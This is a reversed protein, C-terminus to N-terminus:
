QVLVTGSAKATGSMVQAGATGSLTVVQTSGGVGHNDDTFTLTGTIPATVSAKMTPTFGVTVACNAQGALTSGCTNVTISYGAGAVAVSAINLTTTSVNSLTVTQTISAVGVSQDLFTMSSTDLSALAPTPPTAQGIQDLIWLNETRASDVFDGYNAHECPTAAGVMAQPLCGTPYGWADYGQTTTSSVGDYPDDRPTVWGFNSLSSDYYASWWGYGVMPYTGALAGSLVQTNFLATMWTGFGAGRLAQTSYIYNDTPTYPSMYSDPEAYFGEWNFAPIDGLNNFFFDVRAQNDTIVSLPDISPLTPSYALDVYAGFGRLVPARTPSSWSGLQTGMYLVGPAATALADHEIKAYNKAMHYLFNDMDVIFAATTGAPPSAHTAPTLNYDAPIWCTTGGNAKAPCKGDEDLLGWGTGWGNTQYTVTMATGVPVTTAFTLSVAGTTYNITGLNRPKTGTYANSTTGRFYGTVTPSAARPGSGDDGATLTGGVLVQVTLPTLPHVSLTCTYPGTTGDGTACAEGTHTVADSGLSDYHSGWANNLAGFNAYNPGSDLAQQVWTGLEVKTYFATHTFLFDHGPTSCAYNKPATTCAATTLVPSTILSIVGWHADPPKYLYNAQAITPFDTGDRFGGTNDGEDMIMGLLYSTNPGILWTKYSNGNPAALDGALWAAFAPDFFDAAIMMYIGPVSSVKFAGAYGKMPGYGAAAEWGNLDISAYLSSSVAGVYPIHVPNTRDSTGWSSHTQNPLIWNTLADINTNIGWSQERRTVSLGWNLTGNTTFGTAYKNNTLTTNVVHQYDAGGIQGPVFSGNMWFANGIWSTGASGPTCLYWHSSMKATYFHGTHNPDAACPKNILGGYVDLPQDFILISLSKVATAAVGDTVTITFTYTGAVSPTGSIVGGLGTINLKCGTGGAPSVTTALGSAISYGTGPSIRTVATVGGSGDVATVVYGGGSAGAQTVKLVNGVTYTTGATNIAVANIGGASLAFTPSGTPFSGATVAFSYPPTGGTATLNVSYSSGLYGTPLTDNTGIALTQSFGHIPFALLAATLILFRLRM